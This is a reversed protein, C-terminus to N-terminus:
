MILLNTLVYDAFRNREVCGIFKKKRNEKKKTM